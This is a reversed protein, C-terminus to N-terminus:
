MLRTACGLAISVSGDTDMGVLTCSSPCLHIDTPAAPDDYYWGGTGSCSTETEVYPLTRTPGGSGPTYQVNVRMYDLEEDMPPDPIAYDCPLPATETIHERLRDFVATGDVIATHDRDLRGNSGRHVGGARGAPDAAPARLCRGIPGRSV